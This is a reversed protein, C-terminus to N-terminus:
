DKHKKFVKTSFVLSASTMLGVIVALLLNDKSNERLTGKTRDILMFVMYLSVVLVVSYGVFRLLEKKM